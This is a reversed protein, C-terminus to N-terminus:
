LGLVLKFPPFILTGPPISVLLMKPSPPLITISAKPSIPIVFAILLLAIDLAPLIEILVTPLRSILLAIVAVDDVADPPLMERLLPPVIDTILPALTLVSDFLLMLPPFETGSPSM